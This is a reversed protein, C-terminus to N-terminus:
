VALVAEAQVELMLDVLVMVVLDVAVLLGDVLLLDLYEMVQHFVPTVMLHPYDLPVLMAQTDLGVENDQEVVVQDLHILPPIVEGGMLQHHSHIEVEQINTELDPSLVLLRLHMVVVVVLLDVLKASNVARKTLEVVALVVALLM